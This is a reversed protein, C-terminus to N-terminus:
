CKETFDDILSCGSSWLAAYYHNSGDKTTFTRM